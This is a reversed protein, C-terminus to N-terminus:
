PICCRLTWKRGVGVFRSRTARDVGIKRAGAAGLVGRKLHTGARYAHHCPCTVTPRTPRHAPVEAGRAIEGHTTPGPLYVLRVLSVRQRLSRAMDPRDRGWQARQSGQSLSTSLCCLHSKLCSPLSPCPPHHQLFRHYRADIYKRQPAVMLSYSQHHHRKKYNSVRPYKIGPGKRFWVKRLDNISLVLGSFIETCLSPARSWTLFNNSM